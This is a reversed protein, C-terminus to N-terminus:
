VQATGDTSADDIVVVELEPEFARIEDLVAGLSGEENFAPVIAMSRLKRLAHSPNSAPATAQQAM